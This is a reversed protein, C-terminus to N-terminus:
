FIFKLISVVTQLDGIFDELWPPPRDGSFEIALTPVAVFAVVLYAFYMPLMQVSGLRVFKKEAVLPLGRTGRYLLMPHLLIMGGVIGAAFLAALAVNPKNSGRWILDALVAFCSACGVMLTIVALRFCNSVWAPQTAYVFARTAGYREAAEKPDLREYGSM